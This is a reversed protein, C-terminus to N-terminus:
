DEESISDDDGRVRPGEGEKVCRFRQAALRAYQVLINADSTLGAVAAFVQLASPRPPTTTTHTSHPPFRPVIHPPRCKMGPRGGGNVGGGGREGREGRGGVGRVHEDLKYVKESSKPPALLKSAVRKECAIVIGGRSQVGVAAAANQISAM